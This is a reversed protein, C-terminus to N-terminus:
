NKNIFKKVSELTSMLGFNGKYVSMSLVGLLEGKANVVASGSAGPQTPFSIKRVKYSRRCVPYSGTWTKYTFISINEGKCQARTADEKPLDLTSIRFGGVPGEVPTLAYNPYGLSFAREFNNVRKALKIPKGKKYPYAILCLDNSIDKKLVKGWKVKNRQTMRMKKFHGCVHMNTMLYLKGSKGKILFGTGGAALQGEVFGDVQYTSRDLLNYVKQPHNIISFSSAKTNNSYLLGTLLIALITMKKM